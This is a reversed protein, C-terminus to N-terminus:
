RENTEMERGCMMRTPNEHENKMSLGTSGVAAPRFGLGLGEGEVRFGLYEAHSESNHSSSNYLIPVYSLVAPELRLSHRDIADNSARSCM